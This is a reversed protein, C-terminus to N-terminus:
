LVKEERKGGEPVIKQPSLFRIKTSPQAHLCTSKWSRELGPPPLAWLLLPKTEKEETQNKKESPAHDADVNQITSPKISKNSKKSAENEKQGPNKKSLTTGGRSECGVGPEKEVSTLTVKKLNAKKAIFCGKETHRGLVLSVMAGGKSDKRFSRGGGRPIREGSSSGEQIGSRLM